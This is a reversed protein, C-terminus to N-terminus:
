SYSLLAVQPRCGLGFSPLPLNEEPEASHQSKQHSIEVHNFAVDLGCTGAGLSAKRHHVGRAHSLDGAHTSTCRMGVASSVLERGFFGPSGPLLTVLASDIGGGARLSGAAVTCGGDGTTEAQQMPQAPRAQLARGLGNKEPESANFGGSLQM